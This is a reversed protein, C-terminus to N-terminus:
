LAERPGEADVTAAFVPLVPLVTEVAGTNFSRLTQQLDTVTDDDFLPALDAPSLRPTYPLEDVFADVHDAAQARATEFSPGEFEAELDTWARELYPPWQALTRYISPLQDGLGHFSRIAEGTEELSAPLTDALTPPAGRERDLTTPFPATSAREDVPTPELSDHLGRDLIEFLTALRPAVIDYTAIQGRLAHYEAPALDVATRRYTPVSLESLIADRYDITLRAFARTEFAPKVQGWAYRLFEPENVMLTRFIWNIIPGRFVHKIDDYLGRQWGSAELEHLQQSTDM